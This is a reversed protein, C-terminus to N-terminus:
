IGGYVNVVHTVKYPYFSFKVILSEIQGPRKLLRFVHLSRPQM